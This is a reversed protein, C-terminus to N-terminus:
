ASKDQTPNSVTSCEADDDHFLWAELPKKILRTFIFYFAVLFGVGWTPSIEIIYVPWIFAKITNQFSEGIYRFLMELLQESFFDGIGTAEFIDDVFMRIELWIFTVVFGFAYCGGGRADWLTRLSRRIVNLLARLFARPENVLIQGLSKFERGRKKMRVVFSDKKKKNKNKKKADPM